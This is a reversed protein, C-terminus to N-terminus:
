GKEGKKSPLRFTEAYGVQRGNYRSALAVSNKGGPCGHEIAGDDTPLTGVKTKKRARRCLLIGGERQAHRGNSVFGKKSIKRGKKNTQPNFLHSEALSTTATSRQAEKLAGVM